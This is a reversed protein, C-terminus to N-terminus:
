QADPNPGLPLPYTLAVPPPLTTHTMGLPKFILADMMDAYPKGGVEEIVYGALWFGPCAYSYVRGPEGFLADDKWGRVMTSLASDDHSVFPPSFDAVGANNSILQHPTLRSLKPVLGKAYDGIPADLKIKGQESLTVMAAGTFMKTTSGLRFLMNTTVPTGTEFNSVGFGKSFVVLGDRVVTVAAGPTNTEKLEANVVRELEAAAEDDGPHASVHLTGLTNLLIFCPLLLLLRLSLRAKPFM